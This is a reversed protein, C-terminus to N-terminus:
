FFLRTKQTSYFNLVKGALTQSPAYIGTSELLDVTLMELTEDPEAAAFFASYDAYSNSERNVRDLISILDSDANREQPLIIGLEEAKEQGPFGM